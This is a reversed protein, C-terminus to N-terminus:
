EIIEITFEKEYDGDILVDINKFDSSNNIFSQVLNVQSNYACENPEELSVFIHDISLSFNLDSQIDETFYSNLRDFLAELIM